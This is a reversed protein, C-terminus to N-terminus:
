LLCIDFLRCGISVTRTIIRTMARTNPLAITIASFMSEGVASKNKVSFIPTIETSPVM